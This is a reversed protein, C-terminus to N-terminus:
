LTVRDMRKGCPVVIEAHIEQLWQLFVTAVDKGAFQSELYAEAAGMASKQDGFGIAALYTDEILQNPSAVTLYERWMKMRKTKLLARAKEKRKVGAAQDTAGKPDFIQTYAEQPSVGAMVQQLFAKEDAKMFPMAKIV